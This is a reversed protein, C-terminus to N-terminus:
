LSHLASKVGFNQLIPATNMRMTAYNTEVKQALLFLTPSSHVCTSDWNCGPHFAPHCCHLGKIKDAIQICKRMPKFDQLLVSVRLYMLLHQILSLKLSPKSFYIFPNGYLGSMCLGAQRTGNLNSFLSAVLCIFQLFFFDDSKLQHSGVKLHVYQLNTHQPLCKRGRPIGLDPWSSITNILAQHM